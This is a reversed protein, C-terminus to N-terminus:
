RIKYERQLERQADRERLDHRKDVKSKGRALGIEVKVLGKTNLYVRLPVITMGKQTVSGALREIERSHLLLRRDRAPDEPWSTAAAYPPITMGTLYLENGRPVVYAEQISGGGERLSKVESGRLEIGAEIKEVIEYLHRAKRNQVLTQAGSKFEKKKAM